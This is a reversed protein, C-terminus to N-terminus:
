TAFENTWEQAIKNYKQRDSIFIHAIEPVLPDDPNPEGLLSIISLLTKQVTLSAAWNDRLIDLCIDGNININPHYIKTLFKVVPPVFPYKDPFTISMNFVGKNYPTDVPGEIKVTWSLLDNASILFVGLKANEEHTMIELEKQLRKLLVSSM